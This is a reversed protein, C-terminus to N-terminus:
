NAMIHALKKDSDNIPSQRISQILDGDTIYNISVLRKNILALEEARM